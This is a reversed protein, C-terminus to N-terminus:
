YTNEKELIRDMNSEFAKVLSDTTWSDGQIPVYCGLTKASQLSSDLYQILSAVFFGLGIDTAPM